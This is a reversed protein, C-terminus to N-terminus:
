GDDSVLTFGATAFHHDFTFTRQVYSSDRARRLFRQAEVCASPKGGAWGDRTDAM